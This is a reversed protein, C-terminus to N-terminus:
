ATVLHVARSRIRLVLVAAVLGLIGSLTTALTYNGYSSRLIGGMLAAFAAGIQHGAVIWGFVIPAERSGFADNTLRVTPPVTAVWDLGYFLAFVPLGFYSLGFAYPLYILALGRLGYYWFLLVRNNFRDSLWGSLTTGVLDLAGMTALISAGQVPTLGHDGCMAIFHTGIYGNTTAGCIFFSFFLLWFDRVKVAKGLTGFAMSIPNTKPAQAQVCADDAEGYRRMGLSAPQEPLLFYVLPIVLAAGGAVTWIVPRWGEHEVIYALLPLFVLQGTASSATLLGMALGRRATFWRSVVVAGLTMATAGTTSGVILGWILWMQWSHQMVGSWAVAAALIILAGLVTRRLGFRQMTAAAFPGMLGFLALNVSLAGSISALDWGFARQLPVLMVSPAARTGATILMVMFTVAVVVWAYHFRLHKRLAFARM